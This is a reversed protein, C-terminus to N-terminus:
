DDGILIRELYGKKNGVPNFILLNLRKHKMVLIFAAVISLMPMGSLMLYDNPASKSLIPWFKRYAKSTSFRQLNGTSLYEIEGYREASSYDHVSRNVIYVKPM